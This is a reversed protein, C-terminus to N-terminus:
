GFGFPVEIICYHNQLAQVSIKVSNQKGQNNSIELVSVFEVIPAEQKDALSAEIERVPVPVSPEVSAVTKPQRDETVEKKAVPLESISRDGKSPVEPVQETVEEQLTVTETELCEALLTEEGTQEVYM